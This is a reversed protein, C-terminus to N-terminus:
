RNICNCCCCVGVLTLLQWERPVVLGCLRVTHLLWSWCLVGVGVVFVLVCLPRKWQRWDSYVSCIYVCCVFQVAFSCDSGVHKECGRPPRCMVVCKRRTYLLVYITEIKTQIYGACFLCKQIYGMYLVIQSCCSPTSLTYRFGSVCACM